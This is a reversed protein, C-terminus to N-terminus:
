KAGGDSSSGQVHSAVFDYDIPMAVFPIATLVIRNIM